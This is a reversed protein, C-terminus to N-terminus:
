LAHANSAVSSIVVNGQTKKEQRGNIHRDFVRKILKRIKPTRALYMDSQRLIPRKKAGEGVWGIM